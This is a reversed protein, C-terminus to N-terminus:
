RKLFAASERARLEKVHKMWGANRAWEIGQEEPAGFLQPHIYFGQERASKVQEVILPTAKAYADKRVGTVQWSVRTGPIGGAIHFHNGSIEESIYLGPSSRGIATLQYRFDGNLAEFWEPLIVQAEGRADLTIMGDYINKMESSEVSAHVLYKNAPDLPHDIRFDKTGAFITGSVNIDGNFNGAYSGLLGQAIGRATAEIGDGDGNKGQAGVFIGGVGGGSAPSGGDAIIGPGGQSDVFAGGGVAVIGAGGTAPGDPDTNGGTAILATGGNLASDLPASWGSVALGVLSQATSVANLMGGASTTGIQVIGNNLVALKEVGANRLSLIQGSAANDFVGAPLTAKTTIAALAGTPATTGIGVNGTTDQIFIANPAQYAGIALGFNYLAEVPHSTDGVYLFATDGNKKFNNPGKVMANGLDVELKQTPASTGVGVNGTVSLNGTISQNGTFTNNASLQAVKSTDLNLTTTGGLAVAGGGTLGAGPAITLSPHALMANTVGGNAIGLTGTTTIPGGTLGAGSGVRTVTGSGSGPFTQGTAFTLIGKANIKLGTESPAASGLGYLLNLTGSPSATNNAVPEAQWQFTQNMAGSTSSSFSSAVLNLPQSNGGTSANATLARALSLAGRVTVGGNVDLTAAPTTTGVGIRATAGTGTQTLASPQINTTTTFLPVTNVTGGMTTVNATVAPRASAGDTAAAQNALNSILDSTALMFASPPLGGITEADKAKMAYPVAVLLVREQETQGSVQVALWRAEGNAFLEAPLGGHETAGLTATYHGSSDPRINQTELWLPAGGHQDKYLLFTVGAVDSLPNGASDTLVGSYNVLTPVVSERETTGPVVASQAWVLPSLCVVVIPFLGKLVLNKM